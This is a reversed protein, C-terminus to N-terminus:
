RGAARMKQGRSPKYIELGPRNLHAVGARTIKVCGQLDLYQLNRMQDLTKLGRDTLRNCYSLNLRQLRDLEKLSELGADSLGCSSLNLSTLQKLPKLKVLGSDDISRNESLDLETVAPCTQLDTVLESLTHNDINKIRVQAQHGPPIHFIGPGEDFPQWDAGPPDAPRVNVSIPLASSFRCESEVTM